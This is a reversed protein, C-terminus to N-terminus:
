QHQRRGPLSGKGRWRTRTVSHRNWPPTQIAALNGRTIHALYWNKHLLLPWIMECNGSRDDSCRRARTLRRSTTDWSSRVWESGMTLVKHDGYECRYAGQMTCKDLSGPRVMMGVRASVSAWATGSAGLRMGERRGRSWWGLQVIAKMGCDPWASPRQWWCWDRMPPALRCALGSTVHWDRSRSDHWVKAGHRLYGIQRPTFAVSAVTTSSPRALVICTKLDPTFGRFFCSQFDKESHICQKTCVHTQLSVPEYFRFDVDHMSVVVSQQNQPM